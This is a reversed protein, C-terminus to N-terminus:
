SKIFHYEFSYTARRAHLKIGGREAMDSDTSQLEINSLNINRWNQRFTEISEIVASLFKDAAEAQNAMVEVSVGGIYKDKSTTHYESNISPSEVVIIPYNSKQSLLKDSYASVYNQITVTGVGTISVTTVQEKVRDYFNQWINEVITAKAINTVAM